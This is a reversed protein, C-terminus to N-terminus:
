STGPDDTHKAGMRRLAAHVVIQGRNSSGGYDILGLKRFKNLFYNVRQRTTGVMGALMDQKVNSIVGSHRESAGVNALRLLVRTLRQEVSGVLQDILASETELCHSLLYATFATALDPWDHLLRPMLGRDIRVIDADEVVLASTTRYAQHAMCEEGCFDGPGLRAVLREDGKETMITRHLQGTAVYFIADAPDGQRFLSRGAPYKVHPLQVCLKRLRVKADVHHDSSARSAETAGDPTEAHAASEGNQPSALPSVICRQTESSPWRFQNILPEPCVCPLGATGTPMSTKMSMPGIKSVPSPLVCVSMASAIDSSVYWAGIV